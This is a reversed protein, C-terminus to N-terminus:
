LIQGVWANFSAWNQVLDLLTSFGYGISVLAVAVLLGGIFKQSLSDSELPIWISKVPKPVRKAQARSGAQQRAPPAPLWSPAARQSLVGGMTPAENIMTGREMFITKM